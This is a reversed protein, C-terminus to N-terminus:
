EGGGSYTIIRNNAAVAVYQRGDEPDDWVVPAATIRGGTDHRWLWNGSEADLAVLNGGPSGAFVLNGATATTGGPWVDYQDPEVDDFEYEWVIDKRYTPDVARVVSKHQIEDGLEIPAEAWGGIEASRVENEDYFWEPDYAISDSADQAGIYLLGTEPSYSDPPWETGGALPPWMTQMNDEGAPPYNLFQGEGFATHDQRAWSRSREILNGTEIDLLYSWAGKWDVNVVPQVEGDVEMELIKPPVCNDYDWLEHAAMQFTWKLEGSDADFALVSDSHKNPGPRVVGNMMPGPNGTNWVVTNSEPEVAAPMWPAASGFRWSEDVWGDKEVTGYNWLREGTEADLAGVAAWGGEDGSQGWLIKGDYVFPGSSMGIRRRPDIKMNEQQDDTHTSQRWEVEGTYRDFAMVEGYNTNVYAKDQWLYVGRSRLPDRPEILSTDLGPQNSWYVEGTRANVARVTQNMESFYMVPPDGPVIAPNTEMGETPMELIWEIELSDINSRDLRSAPSFGTGQLGKNYNLWSDAREADERVLQDSVDEGPVEEQFTRRNESVVEGTDLYKVRNEPIVDDTPDINESM